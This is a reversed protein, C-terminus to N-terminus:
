IVGQPSNWRKGDCWCADVISYPPMKDRDRYNNIPPLDITHGQPLPKKQRSAERAHFCELPKERLLTTTSSFFVQSELSLHMQVFMNPRKSSRWGRVPTPKPLVKKHPVGGGWGDFAAFASTKLAVFLRLLSSTTTSIYLVIPGALASLLRSQSVSTRLKLSCRILGSVNLTFCRATSGHVPPTRSSKLPLKLLKELDM